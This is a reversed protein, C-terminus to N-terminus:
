FNPDWDAIIQKAKLDVNKIVQGDLYPILREKAGFADNLNARVILVDNSGTEMLDTVIGMDYGTESLVRCNILDKWYYDGQTLAPLNNEEIVVEANTLRQAEDRDNIGKLKIVIDQAHWKWEEVEVFKLQGAARLYWPAYDFINEKNETAPFLKLWGRVGYPAGVKGVVIPKLLVSHTQSQM